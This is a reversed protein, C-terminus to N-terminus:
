GGAARLARIRRGAVAGHVALAPGLLMYVWGALAAAPPGGSAAIAISLLGIGATIGIRSLAHRTIATEVRDLELRGRQRYARVYLSGFLVHVAVFGASYLIMLLHAKEPPVVAALRLGARVIGAGVLLQGVLMGFLFKLPYIYFLVVFLLVANLVITPTDSLGYRRFFLYHDYWLMMLLAFCIAFAPFSQMMGVLSDYTDPVSLSVVLLTMAFAFVADSFGEVRSVEGGRWRFSEARGVGANILGRRM